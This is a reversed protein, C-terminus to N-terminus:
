VVPTAAGRGDVIPSTKLWSAWVGTTVSAQTILNGGEVMKRNVWDAGANM